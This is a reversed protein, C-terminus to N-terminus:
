VTNAVTSNAEVGAGAVTSTPAYAYRENMWKKRDTCGCPKGFLKEFVVAFAENSDDPLNPLTLPTVKAIFRIALEGGFNRAMSLWYGILRSLTDGAGTEGFGRYEYLWQIPEPWQERPIAEVARPAPAPNLPLDKGLHPCLPCLSPNARFAPGNGGDDLALCRNRSSCHISIIENM